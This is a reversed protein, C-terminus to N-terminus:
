MDCQCLGVEEQAIKFGGLKGDTDHPELGAAGEIHRHRRYHKEMLM